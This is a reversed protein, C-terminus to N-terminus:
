SSLKKIEIFAHDQWMECFLPEKLREFRRMGPLKYLPPKWFPSHPSLFRWCLLWVLEFIFKSWHFNFHRIPAYKIEFGLLNAKLWESFKKNLFILHDPCLFYWYSAGAMRVPFCDTRGTVIFLKGGPTLASTLHNVVKMPERLHEFVDVITICDFTNLSFLNENVESGLIKLGSECAIEAALSNPEIGYVNLRPYHNSLLRGTWCGVDLVNSRDPLNSLIEDLKQEHPLREGYSWHDAELQEYHLKLSEESPIEDKFWLGCSSCILLQYDQPLHNSGAQKFRYPSHCTFNTSSCAPCKLMNIM